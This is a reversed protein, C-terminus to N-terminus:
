GSPFPNQKLHFRLDGVLDVFILRDTFYWSGGARAFRDHYRGAIIVQLPLQPRAQLVTFYSRAAANAGDAEIEIIVNTTVHKTSPKGDHLAVRKRYLARVEDVGRRIDPRGDTRLTARAFLQALAEFDGADIREAYSYILAAIAESDTVRNM